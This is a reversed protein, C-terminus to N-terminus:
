DQSPAAGRLISIWATRREESLQETKATYSLFLTGRRSRTIRKIEHQPPLGRCGKHQWEFLVDSASKEIVSLRFSPCGEAMLKELNALVAKPPLRNSNFLSTVLESWNEVNEGALVYERMAFEGAVDQFGLQWTRADFSFNWREPVDPAPTEDKATISKAVMLDPGITNVYSRVLQTLRDIEKTRGEDEYLVLEVTYDKEVELGKVPGHSLRTSTTTGDIFHDYVFPRPDIPNQLIARTYYKRDPAKIVEVFVLYGAHKPVAQFGGRLTRFYTSHAPPPDAPNGGEFTGLIFWPKGDAQAILGSASALGIAACLGFARMARKM